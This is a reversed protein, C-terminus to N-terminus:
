ITSAKQSQYEGELSGMFFDGAKNINKIAYRLESKMRIEGRKRGNIRRAQSQYLIEDERINKKDHEFKWVVLYSVKAIKAFEKM